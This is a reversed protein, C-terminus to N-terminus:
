FTEIQPQEFSKRSKKLIRGIMADGSPLRTTKVTNSNEIMYGRVRLHVCM